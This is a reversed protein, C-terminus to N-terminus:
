SVPILWGAIRVLGYREKLFAVSDSDAVTIVMFLRDGCPGFELVQIHHAKLLSDDSIVRQVSPPTGPSGVQAPSSACQEMPMPTADAMPATDPPRTLTLAQGDWTGVLHLVPTALVGNRYRTVGHMTNLDLGRIDPGGCGIPPEPLPTAACAHPPEGPKQMVVTTVTYLAAPATQIVSRACSTATLVALVMM